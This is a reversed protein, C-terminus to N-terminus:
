NTVDTLNTNLLVGNVAAYNLQTTVPRTTVTSVTAPLLHSYATDEFTKPEVARLQALDLGEHLCAILDEWKWAGTFTTPLALLWTQAPETAPQDFHFTLGTDEERTPIVETWEDILLGCFTNTAPVGTGAYHATYLLREETLAYDPPFELGLWSDDDLLPLQLPVCDLEQGGPYDESYLQLREWSGLFPRVRALGHLWTEVPFPEGLTNRQYDLLSERAAYANSLEDFAQVKLTFRPLLQFDEGLLKRCAQLVAEPTTLPIADGQNVLLTGKATLETAARLLDQALLLVRNRVESTEPQRTTLPALRASATLLLFGDLQELLSAPEHDVFATLAAVYDAFDNRRTTLDTTFVTVDTETSFTTSVLPEALKLLSVSEVPPAAAAALLHGNAEVLLEQLQDRFAQIAEKQLNSLRHKSSYALDTHANLPRFPQLLTVLSTYTSIWADLNNKVTTFIVETNMDELKDVTVGATTLPTIFQDALNDLADLLSTKAAGYPSVNLLVSQDDEERAEGPRSLDSPRLSRVALLIKRADEVLPLLEYASVLPAVPRTYRIMVAAAPGLSHRQHILHQIAEDLNGFQDDSARDLQYLFDTASWGLQALTVRDPTVGSPRIIDVEIAIQDPAPLLDSLWASIAPEAVTLPSGTATVEPDLHLAFRHTLQNGKRPTQAVEPVPPISGKSYANINGAARDYNGKVTQHVSEALALDAVADELNVMRDVARQIAQGAASAAAPLGKVGWPYATGANVKEVLQLGDLVNSAAIQEIADFEDEALKTDELQNAALPFATRFDYIYVDLELADDHLGRELQYGLLAGLQQGGRMGEILQLGMRVRESSLNIAYRERDEPLANGLYANRLVAATTAHDLSPAHIYGGNQSNIVPVGGDARGFVRQQDEDLVAPERQENDPRLNELWGYAGLYIGDRREDDANDSELVNGYRVARLQLDTFGQLWADLRYNCCDLHEALLRELRATPVDILKQLAELHDRWDSRNSQPARLMAGLHDIVRVGAAPANTIGPEERFLLDYRSEVSNASRGQVGVFDLDQRLRFAETETILEAQQYLRLGTDAAQLDTAHRLLQFLLARPRDGENFGAQSRLRAPDNQMADALWALYNKNDPTYARIRETESLPLDDILPGGLPNVKGFFLLQMIRPLEEAQVDDGNALADLDIGHRAFLEKSRQLYAGGLVAGILLQWFGELRLRNIFQKTTEGMRQDWEVSGAHLGLVDLVNQHPDGPRWLHAVTGLRTEWDARIIELHRLLDSLVPAHDSIGPVRFANDSDDRPNLWVGKSRGAIPLVGYPQDAIRLLPLRGRPTVHTRFFEKTVQREWDDTVTDLMSELFYGLTAPYLVRQAAQSELQDTGRFNAATSLGSNEASIGLLDAFWEGDPREAAPLGTEFAGGFFRDFSAEPTEVDDIANTPTGQSLFSLGAAGYQHNHLLQQLEQTGESLDSSLRLGVVFLRDFGARYDVPDLDVVFGMGIKQAEEFDFLWRTDSRRKLYDVYAAAKQDEPPAAGDAYLEPFAERLVDDLDDGPDPGITLPQHILPGIEDLVQQGNRFGQLVLRDPLLSVKAPDAWASVTRDVDVAPPFELFTVDIRQTAAAMRPDDDALGAPAYEGLLKAATAEDGIANVYTELALQLQQPDKAARWSATYYDILATRETPSPSGAETPIVLLIDDQHLRNTPAAMTDAPRLNQTLWYARGPSSLSQLQRWAEIRATRVAQQVEDPATDEAEGARYVGVWFARARQYEAENPLEAFTDILCTDPYARVWLQFRTDDGETITRFRTELRLPFLLVPVEDQWRSVFKRPDSFPQYAKRAADLQSRLDVAEQRLGAIAQKRTRIEADQTRATSNDKRRKSDALQQELRRTAHVGASRGLQLQNLQSALARIEKRTSEFDPM